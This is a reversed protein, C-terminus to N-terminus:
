KGHIGYGSHFGGHFNSHISNEGSFFGYTPHWGIHNAYAMGAAVLLCFAAYILVPGRPPTRSKTKQNPSSGSGLPQQQNIPM